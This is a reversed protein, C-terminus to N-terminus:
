FDLDSAIHKEKYLDKGIDVFCYNYCCLGGKEGM